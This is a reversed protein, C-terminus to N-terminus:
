ALFPRRLFHLHVVATAAVLSMLLLVGLVLVPFIFDTYMIYGILALDAAPLAVSQYDDINGEVILQDFYQFKYFFLCYFGVFTM